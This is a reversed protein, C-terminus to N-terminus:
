ETRDTMDQMTKKLRKIIWVPVPIGALDLNELVSVSEMLVVYGSAFYPIAPASFAMGVLWLVGVALIELTKRYLGKRMKTSDWTSNITAQIWGSVVDTAIMVLPLLFIWYTHSYHLEDVIETRYSLLFNNITTIFDMITTEEVWM